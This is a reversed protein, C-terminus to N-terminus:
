NEKSKEISRDDLGAIAWKEISLRIHDPNTNLIVRDELVEEIQGCLGTYTVVKDGVKLEEQMKKTQKEQSKRPYTTFYFIILIIIATVALKIYEMYEM